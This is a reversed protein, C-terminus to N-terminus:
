MTHQLLLGLQARSVTAGVGLQAERKWSQAQIAFDRVHASLLMLILCRQIEISLMSLLPLSQFPSSSGWTRALPRGESMTLVYKSEPFKSELELLFIWTGHM